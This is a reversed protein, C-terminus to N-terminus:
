QSKLGYSKPKKSVTVLTLKQMTMSKPRFMYVLETKSRVAARFFVTCDKAPKDTLFSEGPEVARM